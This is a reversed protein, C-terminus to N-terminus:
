RQTNVQGVVPRLDLVLKTMDRLSASLTSGDAVGMGALRSVRKTGSSRLSCAIVSAQRERAVTTM